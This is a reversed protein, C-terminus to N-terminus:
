GVPRSPIRSPSPSAPKFTDETKKAAKNLHNEVKKQLAASRPRTRFKLEHLLKELTPPNESSSNYLEELQVISYNFYPRDM